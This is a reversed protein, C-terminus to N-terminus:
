YRRMASVSVSADANANATANATSKQATANVERTFKVIEDIKASWFEADYAYGHSLAYVQLKSTVDNKKMAGASSNQAKMVKDYGEFAIEASQILSQATSLMDNYAKEAEAETKAAKYAKVSKILKLVIPLVTTALTAIIGLIMYLINLWTM